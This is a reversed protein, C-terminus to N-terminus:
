LLESGEGGKDLADAQKRLVDARFRRFATEIRKKSEPDASISRSGSAAGGAFGVGM